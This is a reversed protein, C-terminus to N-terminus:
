IKGQSSSGWNKQMKRHIIAVKAVFLFQYFLCQTVYHDLYPSFGDMCVQGIIKMALHCPSPGPKAWQWVIKPRQHGM